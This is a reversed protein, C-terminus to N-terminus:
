AAPAAAPASSHLEAQSAPSKHTSFISLKNLSVNPLPMRTSANDVDEDGSFMPPNEILTSLVPEANRKTSLINAASNRSYSDQYANNHYHEAIFDVLENIATRAQHPNFYIPHGEANLRIDLYQNALAIQTQCFSRLNLNLAKILSKYDSQLAADVTDEGGLLFDKIRTLLYGYPQYRMDAPDLYQPHVASDRGINNSSQGATLTMNDALM